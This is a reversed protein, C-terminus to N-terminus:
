ATRACTGRSRAHGAGPARRGALFPRGALAKIGAQAIRADEASKVGSVGFAGVCHGAHMIPVGCELGAGDLREPRPLHGGDEVIAITVSWQHARAEAACANAM